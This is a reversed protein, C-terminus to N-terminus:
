SKITARLYETVRAYEKEFAKYKSPAGELSAERGMLELEQALDQLQEAGM